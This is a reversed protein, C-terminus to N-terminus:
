KESLVDYISGENNKELLHSKYWLSYFLLVWAALGTKKSDKEFINSVASPFAIEKICEQEAVLSGIKKGEEFIWKQIPVTFGRKREFPKSDKDREYLWKRLLYKGKGRNIKLKDPLHFSSEIISKDLYPTRGELGHHMLCRDVKNLLDNPLWFKCDFLQANQLKTFAPSKKYYYSQNISPLFNERLIGLNNFISKKEFIYHGFSLPRLLKRYRGYGGFLEDGGEGCLVVKLDKSAREALLFTPLIAYDAVPDDIAKIIRPLDNLFNEKGIQLEIHNSKYKSSLFSSHEKEFYDGTDFYATYSNVRNELLESMIILLVTSDIGGSLFLGLPVDSRLHKSVSDYLANDLIKLYETESKTKNVSKKLPENIIKKEINGKKVIITEGPLLRSVGKIISTTDFSYQNALLEKLAINNIEKKVGNVDCLAGIESAFYFGSNTISYYLPKIGFPDRSIILVEKDEDYLALSYMGRLHETFKNGYKQYLPLIVECDSGSTYNYDGLSSMLEKYNYIEANAILVLGDSSFPQKGNYLDIISLRTHALGVNQNQYFGHQDPGRHVLSDKMKELIESDFSNKKFNFYGAIGCM